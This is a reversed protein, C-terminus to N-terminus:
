PNPYPPRLEEIKGKLNQTNLDNDAYLAFLEIVTEEEVHEANAFKKLAEWGAISPHEKYADLSLALIKQELLKNMPGESDAGKLTRRVETLSAARQSTAGSRNQSLLWAITLATQFASYRWRLMCIALSQYSPVLTISLIAQVEDIHEKQEPTIM